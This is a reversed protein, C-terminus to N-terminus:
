SLNLFFHSTLFNWRMEGDKANLFPCHTLAAVSLMTGLRASNEPYACEQLCNWITIFSLALFSSTFALQAQNSTHSKCKALAQYVQVWGFAWPGLQTEQCLIFYIEYLCPFGLFDLM